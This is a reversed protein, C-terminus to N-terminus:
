QLKQKQPPPSTQHSVSWAVFHTLLGVLVLLLAGLLPRSMGELPVHFVQGSAFLKVLREHIESQGALFDSLPEGDFALRSLQVVRVGRGKALKPQVSLRSSPLRPWQRLVSSSSSFFLSRRLLCQDAHCEFILLSGTMAKWLGWGILVLGLLHVGFGRM